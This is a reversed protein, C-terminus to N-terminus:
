YYPYSNKNPLSESDVIYERYVYIGPMCFGRVSYWAIHSVLILPYLAIYEETDYTLTTNQIYDKGKLLGYFAGISM